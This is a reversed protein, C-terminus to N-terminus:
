PSSEYVDLCKDRIKSCLSAKNKSQDNLIYPKCFQIYIYECQGLVSVFIFLVCQVSTGSCIEVYEQGHM